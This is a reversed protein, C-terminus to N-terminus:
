LKKTIILRDSVKHLIIVNHMFLNKKPAKVSFLIILSAGDTKLYLNFFISGSIM